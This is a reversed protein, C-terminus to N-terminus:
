DEYSLGPVRWVHVHVFWILATYFWSLSLDCFFSTGPNVAQKRARVAIEPIELNEVAPAVAECPVRGFMGM